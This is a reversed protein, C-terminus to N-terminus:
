SRTEQLSRGPRAEKQLLNLGARKINSAVNHDRDLECGCSCNQWRESLEKKVISGCGSCGQSIYAPNVFLVRSAAWEAKSQYIQQFQGWGADRISKNLGAKASAGKPLYTGTGEDQRPRPRTSLNAPQLRAFAIEQKGEGALILLWHESERKVTCIKLTGQPSNAQKGTPMKVTITGIKSLCARDDKTFSFGAQPFTFSDYRGRAQFRPYGPKEGNKVHRFFAQFAKEGRRLTDQLVQSHIDTYEPRIEKLAPLQAAQQHYGINVKAMHYADRREQIAASYLERCRDLVEQLRVAQKKTPYLRYKYAKVHSMSRSRLPSSASSSRRVRLRRGDERLFQQDVADTMEGMLWYCRAGITPVGCPM